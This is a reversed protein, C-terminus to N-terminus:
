IKTYDSKMWKINLYGILLIGGYIYKSSAVGILGLSQICVVCMILTSFGGILNSIAIFKANGIALNLFHPVVNMAMLLYAGALMTLIKDYNDAFSDGMWIRLIQHSFIIVPLAIILGVFIGSLIYKRNQDRTSTVRSSRSLLFSFLAAPLSHIQQAVQLCAAYAALPVAGLVAGILLRDFQQFITGSLIQLWSWSAFVTTENSLLNFKPFWISNGVMKSLICGYIVSNLVGFIILVCFIENLNNGLYAMGATMTVQATKSVLEIRAALGYLDLGKLASRFSFEIQALLQLGGAILIADFVADHRGMDKFLGMVLWEAMLILAFFIICGGVVAIGLGIRITEVLGTVDNKGYCKAVYKTIMAASGFNALGWAGVISAVFMWLGFTAVGLSNIIIPTAIFMLAPYILYESVAWLGM